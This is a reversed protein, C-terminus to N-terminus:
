TAIFCLDLKNYTLKVWVIEIVFLPHYNSGLIIKLQYMVFISHSKSVSVTAFFASCHQWQLSEIEAEKKNLEDDITYIFIFNLVYRNCKQDRIKAM